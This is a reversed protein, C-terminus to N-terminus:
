HIGGKYQILKSIKPPDMYCQGAISLSATCVIVRGLRYFVVIRTTVSWPRADVLVWITWCNWLGKWETLKAHHSEFELITADIFMRAYNHQLEENSKSYVVPTYCLNRCVWRIKGHRWQAFAALQFLSSPRCAFTRLNTEIKVQNTLNM